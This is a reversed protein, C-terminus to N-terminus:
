PSEFDDVPPIPWVTSVRANEKVELGGGVFLGISSLEWVWGSAHMGGGRILIERPQIFVPPDVLSENYEILYTGPQLSWWGYEDDPHRREPEVATTAALQLESGGFDLHAPEDIAYVADVTLDVAGGRIQTDPHVLGDLAAGPSPHM